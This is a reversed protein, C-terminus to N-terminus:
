SALSKLVGLRVKGNCGHTRITARLSGGRRPGGSDQRGGLAPPGHGQRDGDNASEAPELGHSASEFIRSTRTTGLVWARM